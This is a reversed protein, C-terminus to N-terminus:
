PQVLWHLPGICAVMWLGICYYRFDWSSSCGLGRKSVLAEERHVEQLVVVAHIMRLGAVAVVM